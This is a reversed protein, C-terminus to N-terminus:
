TLRHTDTTEVGYAMQQGAFHDQYVVRSNLDSGRFSFEVPDLVSIRTSEKMSSVTSPREASTM